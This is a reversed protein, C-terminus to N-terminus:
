KDSTRRPRASSRSYNDVQAAAAKETPRQARDSHRTAVRAELGALIPLDPMIDKTEVADDDDVDHLTHESGARITGPSDNAYMRSLTDAVVNESGPIYVVEFSFSSIKELWRAQRSSLNKQHLLHILGKHDTLWKFNAGQLIDAHRLMTEVGALMEIEHVPYNQQAPNLKM